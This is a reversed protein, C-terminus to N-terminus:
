SDKNRVEKETTVILGTWLVNSTSKWPQALTVNTTNTCKLKVLLEIRWKPKSMKNDMPTEVLNSRLSSTPQALGPIPVPM